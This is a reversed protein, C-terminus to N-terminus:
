FEILMLSSPNLISSTLRRIAFKKKSTRLTTDLIIGFSICLLEQIVWVREFSLRSNLGLCPLWEKPLSLVFNCGPHPQLGHRRRCWFLGRVERHSTPKFHSAKVQIAQHPLRKFPTKLSTKITIGPPVHRPYSDLAMAAFNQFM